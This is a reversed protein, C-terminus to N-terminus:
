SCPAEGYLLSCTAAAANYITRTNVRAGCKCQYYLPHAHQDSTPVGRGSHLRAGHTPLLDLAVAACENVAACTRAHEM